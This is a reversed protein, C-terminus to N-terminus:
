FFYTSLCLETRLMIEFSLNFSVPLPVFFRAPMRRLIASDVDNPRNTAGLVVIADDLIVYLIYLFGVFAIVM